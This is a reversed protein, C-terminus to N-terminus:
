TGKCEGAGSAFSTGARQAFSDGRLLGREAVSKFRHVSIRRALFIPQGFAHLHNSTCNWARRFKQLNTRPVNGVMLAPVKSRVFEAPNETACM